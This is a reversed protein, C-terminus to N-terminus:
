RSSAMVRCGPLSEDILELRRIVRGGHATVASVAAGTEGNAVVVVKAPSAPAAAAPALAGAVAVALLAGVLRRAITQNM